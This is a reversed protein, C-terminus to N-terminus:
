RGVAKSVAELLVDMRFPKTISDIFGHERFNAMATNNSYGSAVIIRASPDISLIRHAAEVGGMGGPVTIDTIVVDFPDGEDLSKIYMEVATLGDEATLTSYGHQDLIETIVDRVSVEDDMVLVRGNGGAFSQFISTETGAEKGSSPLHITFETGQKGSAGLTICGAHNKVISYVTALGLGTGSPRTTFYPDFIRNRIEDSIGTGNDKITLEIYRGPTLSLGNGAEVVVNKALISVEGGRPTAQISNLVINNVVQAIQSEDADVPWLDEVICFRIATPSGTAAFSAAEQVVKRIDCSKRVPKGGKSFTLLQRTLDSARISAREANELKETIRSNSTAYLKALSINGLVAAMINNFDHAIGGALIGISELKQNKLMEEELAKNTSIDRIIGDITQIEGRVNLTATASISGWFPKGSITVLEVDYGQVRGSSFMEDMFRTRDSPNLYRESVPIRYLDNKSKEGFMQVMASNAFICKGAANTTYAAVPLNEVLKRYKQTSEQLEREIQEVKKIETVDETLVVVFENQGNEGEIGYFRQHVWKKLSEVFIADLVLDGGNEYIDWVKKQNEGLYRDRDDMRLADHRTSLAKFVEDQPKGWIKAWSSNCLVLNGNRDRVSIGVPSQQIIASNIREGPPGTIGKLQTELEAIRALASELSHERDNQSM